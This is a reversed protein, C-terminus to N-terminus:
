FSPDRKDIPNPHAVLEEKPTCHVSGEIVWTVCTPIELNRSSGTMFNGHKHPFSERRPPASLSICPPKDEPSNTFPYSPNRLRVVVKEAGAVAIEDFKENVTLHPTM